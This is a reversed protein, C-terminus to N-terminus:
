QVEGRSLWAGGCSGEGTAMLIVMSPGSALWGLHCQALPLYDQSRKVWNFPDSATFIRPNGAEMGILVFGGGTFALHPEVVDFPPETPVFASDSGTVWVETACRGDPCVEGALVLRDGNTILSAGYVDVDLGGIRTWALADNSKYVRAHGDDAGTVVVIASDAVTLAAVSVGEDKGAGLRSPDIRHWTKLDSSSFSGGLPSDPDNAFGLVYVRESVVLQRLSPCGENCRGLDLTDMLSWQRGDDSRWFLGTVVPVRPANDYRMGAAVYAGNYAVETMIAGEGGPVTSARWADGDRYWAAADSQPCDATTVVACTSGVIVTGPEGNVAAQPAADSGPLEIREWHDGIPPATPEASPPAITPSASAAAPASAAPQTPTATPSSIPTTSCGGVITMAAAIALWRRGAVAGTVGVPVRHQANPAKSGFAGIPASLAALLVCSSSWGRETTLRISSACPAL